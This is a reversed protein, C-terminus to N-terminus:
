RVVVTLEVERCSCTLHAVGAAAHVICALVDCRIWVINNNCTEAGVLGALLVEGDAECFALAKAVTGYRVAIAHYAKATLECGYRVTCTDLNDIYTTCNGCAAAVDM